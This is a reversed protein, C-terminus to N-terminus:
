ATRASRRPALEDLAAFRDEEEEPKQEGDDHQGAGDTSGRTREPKGWREPHGRELLWAAASWSGSKAAKSIRAVLTAEAQAQAQVIVARFERHPRNAPGDREGRAMWEYFTDRHIGVAHASVDVPTGLRILAALRETLEPTLKSRAVAM